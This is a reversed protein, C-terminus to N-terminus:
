PQRGLLVPEMQAAILEVWGAYQKASPFLGGNTVLSADYPVRDSVPTIDVVNVGRQQAEATLIANAEAIDERVVWISGRSTLTMDPTTIVFIREPPLEELLLDLIAGVNERYMDLTIERAIIDNVGVLLSVVDPSYQDMQPVQDELVDRSTKSSDALNAAVRLPVRDDLVRDLQRPWRDRREMHDAATYGDGLTVLRLTERAVVTAASPSASNPPASPSAAPSGAATCATVSLLVLATWTINRRVTLIPLIVRNGTLASKGCRRAHNHEQWWPHM